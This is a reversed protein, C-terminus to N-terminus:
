VYTGCSSCYWRRNLAHYSLPRHCRPCLMTRMRGTRRPLGAPHATRKSLLAAAALGAIAAPVAAIILVLGGIFPGPPPVPPILARKEIRWEHVDPNTSSDYGAAYISSADAAVAHAEAAGSAPKSTANWMLSGDALHRKEIRWEFNDPGQSEDSGVAYIGSADVTVGYPVDDLSSPHSTVNWALSGDDLHRKEVRWERPGTPTEAVGVVYIESRDVAVGTPVDERPSPNSTANWMLSGDALRRKEIRWESNGPLTDPGAVYVGSGDVAVGYVNLTQTAAETSPSSTVNWMLSGDTLRRKEVRWEPGRSSRQFGVVYVSSDDVAVGRAQSEPIDPDSLVQAWILSGDTLSRKEIRWRGLTGTGVDKGQYGAVYVGTDDVATAVPRDMYITPHSTRNWVVSGDTLSRKEIRWRSFCAYICYMDYGVVYFASGDVAIGTAEDAGTGPNSTATWVPSGDTLGRKEIRWQYNDPSQDYGVAYVGSADVAVGKAEADRSSPNSTANWMLSGDLLHRKEVRWEENGPSQDSGAVYIGSPDIAVHWVWNNGVTPYSTANWVLSGDSLNRKEARWEMGGTVPQDNGVVYLGTADVAAAAASDLSDVSPHSTANWIMSGDTLRRKEIRWETNGPSITSEGVVYIGSDDVAVGRALNHERPRSTANWILSGDSVDRKEIRWDFLVNALDYEEIGVVYLGSSDVAVASAEDVGPTPNSTATWIVSGDATRRKEIRWETDALGHSADFGAVYVGSGDVAVASAASPLTSRDPLASAWVLLGDMPNRKEVRWQRAHPENKVGYPHTEVGVVYLGTGDAAVANAVNVGCGPNSEVAWLLAEARVANVTTLAVMLILIASLWLHRSAYACKM